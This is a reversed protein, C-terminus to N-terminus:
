LGTPMSVANLIRNLRNMLMNAHERGPKVPLQMLIGMGESAEHFKKPNLSSVAACNVMPNRSVANRVFELGTIDDLNEDAVVLDFSSSAMMCIGMAGSDAWTINVGHAALGIDLPSLASKCRCVLLIDIM